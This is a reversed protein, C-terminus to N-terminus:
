IRGGIPEPSLLPSNYPLKITIVKISIVSLIEILILNHILDVVKRLRKHVLAAKKLFRIVNTFWFVQIEPAIGPSAFSYIVHSQLATILTESNLVLSRSSAVLMCSLCLWRKRTICAPHRAHPTPPNLYSKLSLLQSETSEASSEHPSAQVIGEQSGEQSEMNRVTGIRLRDLGDM